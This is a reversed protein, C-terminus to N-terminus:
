CKVGLKWGGKFVRTAVLLALCATALVGTYIQAGTFSGGNASQIAGGLPSGTLASISILSFAMGLRTGTMNIQTTISTITGPFLCQFAAQAMGYFVTFVYFGPVDKVALWCWTVLCTAVTIPLIINLPGFRDALMPPIVRAITGVGNILIVLISASSYSLGLQETGFSAIYYFVFYMGMCQAFVSLVFCLYVPERFASWDVIPGSKRPPLRPRMFALALSLLGLNLFALVRATWAFGLKPLLERALVPYIMGGVANGTTALGLATARHKDFYTAVLALSPTFFIGGGLGSLVGQTLMLHWYQTSVSMLFMGLIQFLVGVAFTPLFLGADLMRGSFAGMLFTLFVQVSGIWSITSPPYPLTATYYTQFAGFSNVYGWTTFIVIWGMAVQTWAKFGGDPPPPPEPWSRTTLRSAVQSLVNSTARKIEGSARVHLREKRSPVKISERENEDM